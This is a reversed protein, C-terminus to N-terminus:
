PQARQRALSDDLGSRLALRGVRHTEPRPTCELTYWSLEGKLWRGRLSWVGFVSLSGFGFFPFVSFRFFRFVGPPVRAPAGPNGWVGEWPASTPSPSPPGAARRRGDGGRAFPLPFPECYSEGRLLAVRPCPFGRRNTRGGGPLGALSGRALPSWTTWWRLSSCALSRRALLPLGPSTRLSRWRARRSTQFPFRFCRYLSEALSWGPWPWPTYDCAKAQPPPLSPGEAFRGLRDTRRPVPSVPRAGASRDM